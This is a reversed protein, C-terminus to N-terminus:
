CFCWVDVQWLRSPRRVWEWCRPTQKGSRPSCICISCCTLGLKPSISKLKKNASLAAANHWWQVTPRHTHTHKHTENWLHSWHTNTRITDHNQTVSRILKPDVFCGLFTVNPNRKRKFHEAGARISGGRQLGAWLGAWLLIQDRWLYYDTLLRNLFIVLSSWGFQLPSGDLDPDGAHQGVQQEEQLWCSFKCSANFLFCTM